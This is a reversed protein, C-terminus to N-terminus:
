GAKAEKGAASAAPKEAVPKAESKSETEAKETKAKTGRQMFDLLVRRRRQLRKLQKQFTRLELSGSAGLDKQRKESLTKKLRKIKEELHTVDAM